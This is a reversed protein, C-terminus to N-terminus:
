NFISHRWDRLNNRWNAMAMNGLTTRIFSRCLLSLTSMSTYLLVGRSSIRYSIVLKSCEKSGNRCLFRGFLSVLSSWAVPVVLLANTRVYIRLIRSSHYLWCDYNFNRRLRNQSTERMRRQEYLQILPLLSFCVNSYYCLNHSRLSAL